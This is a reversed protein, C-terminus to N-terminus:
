LVRLDFLYEVAEQAVIDLSPQSFRDHKLKIASRRRANKGESEPTPIDDTIKGTAIKAVMVARANVDAPRREGKPGRPV